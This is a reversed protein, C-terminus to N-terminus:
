GLISNVRPESVPTWHDRSMAIVKEGNGMKKMMENNKMMKIEVGM